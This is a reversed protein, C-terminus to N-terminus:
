MRMSNFLHQPALLHNGPSGDEMQNHLPLLNFHNSWPFEDEGEQFPLRRTMQMLIGIEWLIEGLHKHHTELPHM